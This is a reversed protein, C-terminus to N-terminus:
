NTADNGTARASILNDQTKVASGDIAGGIAMKVGGDAQSASISSSGYDQVSQISFAADSDLNDPGKVLATGSPAGPLAPVIANIAGGHVTLENGSALNGAAVTQISNGSTSLSSGSVAGDVDTALGGQTSAEITADRALQVSTIDAVAGGTPEDNGPAGAISLTDLAVKNTSQSGYAAAILTNTDTSLSSNAIDGGITTRIAPASSTNGTQARITGGALQHALIGYDATVVPDGDAVTPVVSADGISSPTTVAAITASVSNDATNGSAIARELNNYKALNGSAVSGTDLAFLGRAQAAVLGNSGATQSSAIGAGSDASTGTLAIIASANNGLALGEQTNGTLTLRSNSVAGADLGVTSGLIDGYTLTDTTSQRNAIVTAGHASVEAPGATLSTGGVHDDLALPSPSIEQIAQNSRAMGSISNDTVALSSHDIDGATINQDAANSAAGRTTGSPANQQNALTRVGSAQASAVQPSAPSSALMIALVAGTSGLLRRRTSRPLHSFSTM